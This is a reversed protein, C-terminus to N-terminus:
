IIMLYQSIIKGYVINIIVFDQSIVKDFAWELKIKEFCQTKYQEDKNHNYAILFIKASHPWAEFWAWFVATNTPDGDFETEMEFHFQVQM